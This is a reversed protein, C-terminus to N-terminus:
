FTLELRTNNNQVEWEEVKLYLLFPVRRTQLWGMTRFDEWKFPLGHLNIVSWHQNYHSIVKCLPMWYQLKMFDVLIWLKMHLLNRLSDYFSTKERWCLSHYLCSSPCLLLDVMQINQKHLQKNQPQFQSDLLLDYPLSLVILGWLLGKFYCLIKWGNINISVSASLLKLEKSIKM